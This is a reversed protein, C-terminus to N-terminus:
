KDFLGDLSTNRFTDIWHEKATRIGAQQPSTAPNPSRKRTVKQRSLRELNEDYWAARRGLEDYILQRSPEDLPASRTIRGGRLWSDVDHAAHEIPEIGHGRSDVAEARIESWTKKGALNGSEAAENVLSRWREVSSASPTRTYVVNMPTIKGALSTTKDAKAASVAGKALGSSEKTVVKAEKLIRSFTGFKGM